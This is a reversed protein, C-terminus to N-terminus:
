DSVILKAEIIRCGKTKCDLGNKSYYRGDSLSVSGNLDDNSLKIFYEGNPNIFVAGEPVEHYYLLNASKKVIEM